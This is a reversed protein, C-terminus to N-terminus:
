YQSGYGWTTENIVQDSVGGVIQSGKSIQYKSKGRIRHEPVLCIESQGWGSVGARHKMFITKHM